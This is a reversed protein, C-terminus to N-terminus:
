SSCADRDGMGTGVRDQGRGRGRNSRGDADYNARLQVYMNRLNAQKRKMEALEDEETRKRKDTTSASQKAAKEALIQAACAILARENRMTESATGQEVPQTPIDDM